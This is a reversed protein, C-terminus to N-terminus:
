EHLPEKPSQERIRQLLPDFANPPIGIAALAEHAKTFDGAQASEVIKHAAILSREIQSDTMTMVARTAALRLIPTFPLDRILALAEDKASM